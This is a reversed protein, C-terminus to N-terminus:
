KATRLLAALEMIRGPAQKAVRTGLLDDAAREYESKQIYGLFVGFRALGSGGLQFAMETLVDKVVDPLAHFGAGYDFAANKGARDIDHALVAHIKNKSWCLNEPVPRKLLHGFGITPNGLTDMYVCERYGEHREIRQELTEANALASFVLFALILAIALWVMTRM